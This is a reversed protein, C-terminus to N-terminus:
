LVRKKLEAGKRKADAEYDRRSAVERLQERLGAEAREDGRVMAARFRTEALNWRKQFFAVYGLRINAMSNEPDLKIVLGNYLESWAACDLNPATDLGLALLACIETVNRSGEAPVANQFSTGATREALYRRCYAEMGHWAEGRHAAALAARLLTDPQANKQLFPTITSYAENYSGERFCVDALSQAATEDNADLALLRECVLRAKKLDGTQFALRFASQQRSYEALADTEAKTLSRARRSWHLTRRPKPQASGPTVQGVAFTTVTLIIWAILATKNM